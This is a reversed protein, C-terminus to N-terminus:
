PHPHVPSDKPKLAYRRFVERYGRFWHGGTRQRWIERDQKYIKPIDYWALGPRDHHVLHYCNNLFLLAFPAEAEVIACRTDNNEGPRHELYSRLMTLMLGIYLAAVMQWVPVACIWLWWLGLVINNLALCIWALAYRRDGRALKAGENVWFQVAIWPAGVMMRGLATNSVVFLGRKLLGSQRWTDPMLYRSEPDLVPHSLHETEHHAMHSDRYIPFPVWGGLNLAVLAHNLKTSNTPHGHVVEHAVHGHLCILYGAIPIAAWFPIASWYLTLAFFGGYCGLIVLATPWERVRGAFVTHLRGFTTALLPPLDTRTTM